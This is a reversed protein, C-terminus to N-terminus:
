ILILGKLKCTVIMIVCPGMYNVTIYVYKIASLMYGPRLEQALNESTAGFM